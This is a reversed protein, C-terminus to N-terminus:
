QNAIGLKKRLIQMRKLAVAADTDRGDSLAKAYDVELQKLESAYQEMRGPILKDLISGIAGALTGWGPIAM